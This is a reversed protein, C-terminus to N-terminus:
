GDGYMASILRTLASANRESLAGLKNGVCSKSITRIHDVAIETAKGAVKVTLRTRWTPHLRSTLPCVTVTEVRENFEDRSVIVVQREKAVESGVVPDLAAWRIEFRKM